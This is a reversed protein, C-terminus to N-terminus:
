LLPFLLILVGLKIYISKNVHVIKSQWCLFMIPHRTVILSWYKVSQNNWTKHLQDDIGIFYKTWWWKDDLSYSIYFYPRWLNCDGAFPSYVSFSSSVKFHRQHQQWIFKLDQRISKQNFLLIYTIGVCQVVRRM